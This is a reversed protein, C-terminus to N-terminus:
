ILFHFAAARWYARDCTIGVNDMFHEFKWQPKSMQDQLVGSTALPGVPTHCERTGQWSLFFSAVREQLHSVRCPGPKSRDQICFKPRLLSTRTASSLKYFAAKMFLSSISYFSISSWLGQICTLVERELLALYATQWELSTYCSVSFTLKECWFDMPLM